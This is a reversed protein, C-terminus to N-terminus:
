RDLTSYCTRTISNILKIVHKSALMNIFTYSSWESVFHLLQIKCSSLLRSLYATFSQSYCYGFPPHVILHQLRNVIVIDLPLICMDLSNDFILQNEKIYPVMKVNILNFLKTTQHKHLGMPWTNIYKM